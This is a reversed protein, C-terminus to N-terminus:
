GMSHRSRIKYHFVGLTTRPAFLEISKPNFASYYDIALENKNAIRKVPLILLYYAIVNNETLPKGQNLPFEM